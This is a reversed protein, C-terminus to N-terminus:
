SGDKNRPKKCNRAPQVRTPAKPPLPSTKSKAVAAKLAALFRLVFALVRIAKNWALVCPDVVYKSFTYRAELRDVVKPLNYACSETARVEKLATRIDEQEMHVESVTRLPASELSGRMWPKGNVWESTESVDEFTVERTGLDAINAESPVHYWNDLSTLRRVEIVGNRVATQLPRADQHLWFLVITSDTVFVIRNGQDGLALSASHALSAGMVAAKLEGRPITALKTLKSKGAVLRCSFDGGVLRSRAHVAAVAVYQSSDVSVILEVKNDIAEPHLFCRPFKISQLLKIEKILSSWGDVLEMPLPEDWGTKLEVIKSLSLKFQATIPTVLGKPDFIGALQGTLVRKTFRGQLAETLDGTVELPKKGRRSNGLITPKDALAIWEKVPNWVYGLVGVTEGNASVKDSPPEGSFTFDKIVVNAAALVEQM